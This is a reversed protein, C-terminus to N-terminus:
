VWGSTQLVHMQRYQAVLGVAYRTIFMMLAALIDFVRSAPSRRWRPGFVTAHQDTHTYAHNVGLASGALDYIFRITAGCSNACFDFLVFSLDLILQTVFQLRDANLPM